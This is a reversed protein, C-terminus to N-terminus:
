KDVDEMSDIYLYKGHVDDIYYLAQQYTLNQKVVNGSADKICYKLRNEPIM